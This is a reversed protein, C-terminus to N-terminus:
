PFTKPSQSCSYNSPDYGRLSFRSLRIIVRRLLALRAAPRDLVRGTIPVTAPVSVQDRVLGLDLGLVLVLDLGPVRVSVRGQVPGLGAVELVRGSGVAVLISDVRMLVMRVLAQVRATSTAGV